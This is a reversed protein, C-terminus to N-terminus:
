AFGVAAFVCGAVLFHTARSSAAIMAIHLM